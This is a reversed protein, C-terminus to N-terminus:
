SGCPCCSISGGGPSPPLPRCTAPPQPWPGPGIGGCALAYEGEHCQNVCAAYVVDPTQNPDPCETASNSLCLMGGGNSGQCSLYARAARCQGPSADAAEFITPWTCTSPSADTKSGSSSSGCAGLLISVLLLTPQGSMSFRCPRM